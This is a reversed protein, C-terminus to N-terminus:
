EQASILHAQLFPAFLGRASASASAPKNTNGNLLVSLKKKRKMGVGSGNEEKALKATENQFISRMQALNQKVGGSATTSADGM